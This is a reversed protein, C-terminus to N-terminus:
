RPAHAVGVFTAHADFRKARIRLRVEQGATVNLPSELFFNVQEYGQFERVTQLPGDDLCVGLVEFLECMAPSGTVKVLVHPEDPWVRIEATRGVPLLNDEGSDFGYFITAEQVM